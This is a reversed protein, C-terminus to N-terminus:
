HRNCFNLCIERFCVTRYYPESIQFANQIQQVFSPAYEFIVDSSASYVDRGPYLEMNFHIAIYRLNKRTEYLINKGPPTFYVWDKRRSYRINGDLDYLPSNDLGGDELLAVLTNYPLKFPQKLEASEEFVAVFSIEGPNGAPIYLPSVPM